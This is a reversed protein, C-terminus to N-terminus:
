VVRRGSLLQFILAIVALVLLIHIFGGMTYSSIVGILWLVLLIVFLTWLMKLVGPFTFKSLERINPHLLSVCPQSGSCSNKESFHLNRYLAFPPRETMGRCAFQQRRSRDHSAWLRPVDEVQQLLVSDLGRDDRDFVCKGARHALMKVQQQLVFHEHLAFETQPDLVVENGRRSDPECLHAPHQRVRHRKLQATCEKAYMPMDRCLRKVIGGSAHFVDDFVLQSVGSGDGAALGRRFIAALDQLARELVIAPVEGAKEQKPAIGFRRRASVLGGDSERDLVNGSREELRETNKCQALDTQALDFRPWDRAFGPFIHEVNVQQDPCLRPGFFSQIM